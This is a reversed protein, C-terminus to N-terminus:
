IGYNKLIEESVWFSGKVRKFGDSNEVEVFVEIGGIFSSKKFDTIIQKLKQAGISKKLRIIKLCKNAKIESNNSYNENKNSLHTINAPLKKLNKWDLNKFKAERNVPLPIEENAFLKLVGDEFKNINNIILKPLEDFEKIENEATNEDSAEMIEDLVRAPDNTKRKSEQIKGQVWYLEKEELISSVNLANKPFIIGEVSLDPVSIQLTFMMTNTKTFIKNIKDILVLYIDDRGSTDRCWQLLEKYDDLPNGSVYLGLSEKEQLLINIKSIEPVNKELIMTQSYIEDECSFLDETDIKGAHRQIAINELMKESNAALFSRIKIVDVM